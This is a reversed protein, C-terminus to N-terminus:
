EFSNHFIISQVMTLWGMLVANNLSTEITAEGTILNHIIIYIFKFM